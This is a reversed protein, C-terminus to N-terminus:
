GRAPGGLLPCPAMFSRHDVEGRAGGGGHQPQEEERREGRPPGPPDEGVRRVGEVVPELEALRQPAQDEQAERPRQRPERDGDRGPTAPVQAQGGPVQQAPDRHLGQHQHQEVGDRPARRRQGGQGGQQLRDDLRQQDDEEEGDGQLAVEQRRRDRDPGDARRREEEHEHPEAPPQEEVPQPRALPPPGDGRLDLRPAAAGAGGAVPPGPRSARAPGRATSRAKPPAATVRTAPTASSRVLLARASRHPSVPTTKPAVTRAAAVASGSILVPRRATRRPRTPSAIPSMKPPFWTWSVSKRTASRTAPWGTRCVTVGFVAHSPPTPTITVASYATP